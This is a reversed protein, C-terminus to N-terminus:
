LTLLVLMIIVKRLLKNGSLEEYTEDRLHYIVDIKKIHIILIWDTQIKMLSKILKVWHIIYMMM